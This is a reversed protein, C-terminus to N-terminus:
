RFLSFSGPNKAGPKIWQVSKKASLKGKDDIADLYAALWSALSDDTKMAEMNKDGRVLVINVYELDGYVAAVNEAFSTFAGAAAAVLPTAISNAGNRLSPLRLADAMCPGEKLLFVLKGPGIGGVNKKEFRALTEIALYQFGLILNDSSEACESAETRGALQAFYEKDFFLVTEDLKDYTNEAQLILTRASLSSGRNWEEVAVSANLPLTKTSDGDEEAAASSDFGATGTILVSRGQSAAGEAFTNGAPTDKGAVLMTKGM